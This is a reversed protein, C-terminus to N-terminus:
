IVFAFTVINYYSVYIIIFNLCRLTSRSLTLLVFALNCVCLQTFYLFCILSFFLTSTIILDNSSIIRIVVITIFSIITFRTNWKYKQFHFSRRITLKADGVPGVLVPFLFQKKIKTLGSQQLHVKQHCFM